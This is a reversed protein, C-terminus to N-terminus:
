DLVERLRRFDDLVGHRRVEHDADAHQEPTLTDFSDLNALMTRITVYDGVRPPWANGAYRQM